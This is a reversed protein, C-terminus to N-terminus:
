IDACVGEPTRPQGTATRHPAPRCARAVTIHMTATSAPLGMDKAIQNVAVVRDGLYRLIAVRTDNALARFIEAAHGEGTTGDVHFSKRAAVRHNTEM